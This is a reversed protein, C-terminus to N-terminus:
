RQSFFVHAGGVRKCGIMMTSGEAFPVYVEHSTMRCRTISVLVNDHFYIVKVLQTSSIGLNLVVASVVVCKTKLLTM